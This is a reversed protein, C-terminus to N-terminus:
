FEATLRVVFRDNNLPLRDGERRLHYEVSLTTRDQPAVTVGISYVTSRLQTKGVGNPNIVEVRARDFRAKPVVRAIGFPLTTAKLAYSGELM